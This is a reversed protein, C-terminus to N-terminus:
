RVQGPSGKSFIHLCEGDYEIRDIFTKIYDRRNNIPLEDFHESLQRLAATAQKVKQTIQAYELDKNQIDNINDDIGRNAADLQEIQTNIAQMTIASANGSSLTNVLNRIKDENARKEGQLIKIRKARERDYEKVAKAMVSIYKAAFGKGTDDILKKTVEEDAYEQM